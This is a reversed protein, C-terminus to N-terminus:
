RKEAVLLLVTHMFELGSAIKDSRRPQFVSNDKDLKSEMLARTEEYVPDGPAKGANGMWVNFDHWNDHLNESLVYM